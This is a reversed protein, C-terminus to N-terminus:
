HRTVVVSNPVRDHRGLRAVFEWGRGVPLFEPFPNLIASGATAQWEKSALLRAVLSPASPGTNAGRGRVLTSPM